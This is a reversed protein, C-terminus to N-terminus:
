QRGLWRRIFAAQARMDAEFQSAITKEVLRGVGFIAVTVNLTSSVECGEPHPRTTQHGHITIKSAVAGSIYQFTWRRQEPDFRGREECRFTGGLVKKVPAPANMKPNFSLTRSYAGDDPHQWSTITLADGGLGETYLAEIFARDCYLTEWYTDPSVPLIHQTTIEM